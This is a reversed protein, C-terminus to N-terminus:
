RESHEARERHCEALKEEQRHRRQLENYVHIGSLGIATGISALRVVRKYKQPSEIFEGAIVPVFVGLQQVIYGTVGMSTHANNVALGPKRAPNELGHPNLFQQADAYGGTATRETWTNGHYHAM